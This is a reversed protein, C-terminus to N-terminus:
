DGAFLLIPLVWPQNSGTTKTTEMRRTAPLLAHSPRRDDFFSFWCGVDGLHRLCFYEDDFECIVPLFVAFGLDVACPLRLQERLGARERLSDSLRPANSPRRCPLRTLRVASTCMLWRRCCASRPSSDLLSSRCSRWGTWM